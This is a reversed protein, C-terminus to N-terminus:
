NWTYRYNIGFTRPRNTTLRTKIWRDNYLVRAYENFVNDVYLAASWNSSNLGFRLNFISYSPHTRVTNDALTSTIGALSSVSEGQYQYVGVLYPEAGWLQGSFNYQALLSGKWEPVIPLRTGKVAEKPEDADPFLVADESLEADNYGLTGSLQWSPAPIWSFDAEIGNIQAEPFNIIGLQFFGGEEVAEIQIDKWVMHFLTLNFQFRGDAWTTKTGVEYNLLEDSNYTHYPGGAGFISGRKAANVGGSRFGESYNFFVMKDEDIRYTANFKPVFGDETSEAFEDVYCTDFGSQPIGDIQWADRDAQTGCNMQLTQPPNILTGNRTIRDNDIEFWRGGLTIALNETVDFTVEGFVAIQEQNTEYVGHWWNDSVKDLTGFYYYHLYSGYTFQPACGEAAAYYESCNDSMGLVHATFPQPGSETKNYFVGAIWSWRSDKDSPSSLRAEFSTRDWEQIDVSVALPDGGFDYRCSYYACAYDSNNSDHWYYNNVQQFTFLYATSDADYHTERHAVGGTITLDAWGLSGEATLALQYWEDSWTEPNFRLQEWKGLGSDEDTGEALDVDGFGDADTDQFIAQADFVWNDGPTWRLAVRAGSTESTNVNDDVLGANDFTGGPSTGLINDVWGADEATFGVLRLALKDAVLPINVMASVDYGNDGGKVSEGTLDVWSEFGSTDPKHTIIRLTGCQAAEGFLTGQPGALAEVRETDVLRVDPSFGQQGIPQEDLYISTTPNDSFAVASVACGRIIVSSGGPERRGYSLSPIQGVYDDFRKFGQLRIDENTFATISMPVDQLNLAGRKTATVMVEELVLFDKSDRGEEQAAEQAYAAAPIGACIASIITSLSKVPYQQALDVKHTM